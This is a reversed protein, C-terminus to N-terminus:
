SKGGVTSSFIGSAPEARRLPAAASLTSRASWASLSAAATAALAGYIFCTKQATHLQRVLLSNGLKHRKIRPPIWSSGDMNVHFDMDPSRHGALFKGAAM